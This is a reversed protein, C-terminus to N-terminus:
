PILAIRQEILFFTITVEILVLSGIIDTFDLRPSIVKGVEFGIESILDERSGKM